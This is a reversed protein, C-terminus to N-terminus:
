KVHLKKAEELLPDNSVTDAKLLEIESIQMEKAYLDALKPFIIRYTKYSQNNDFFIEHKQNRKKSTLLTVKHFLPSSNAMWQVRWNTLVQIEGLADEASTLSLGNIIGGLTHITLGSGKADYNLYKTRVNDDIAHKPTQTKPTNKSSGVVKSSPNSLDPTLLHTLNALDIKTDLFKESKRIKELFKKEDNLLVEWKAKSEPDKPVTIHDGYEYKNGDM